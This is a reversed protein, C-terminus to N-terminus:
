ISVTNGFNGYMKEQIWVISERNGFLKGDM